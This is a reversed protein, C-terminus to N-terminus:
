TEKEGVFSDVRDKAQEVSESLPSSAFTFPVRFTPPAFFAFLFTIKLSPSTLLM